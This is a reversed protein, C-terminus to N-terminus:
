HLPINILLKTGSKHQIFHHSLPVNLPKQDDAQICPLNFREYFRTHASRLEPAIVNLIDMAVITSMIGHSPVCVATTWAM